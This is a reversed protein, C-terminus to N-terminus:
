AIDVWVVWTATSVGYCQQHRKRRKGRRKAGMDSKHGSRRQWRRGLPRESEGVASRVQPRDGGATSAPVHSNSDCKQSTPTGMKRMVILQLGVEGVGVEDVEREKEVPKQKEVVMQKEVEREKELPKQKEVKEVPKQEEVM